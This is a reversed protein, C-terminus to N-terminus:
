TFEERAFNGSIQMLFILKGHEAAQKVAETRSAAWNIQTGHKRPEGAQCVEPKPADDALTHGGAVFMWAASLLGVAALRGRVRSRLFHIAM